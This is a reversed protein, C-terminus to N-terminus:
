QSFSKIHINIHPRACPPHFIFSVRDVPTGENTLTYSHTAILIPSFVTTGQDKAPFIEIKGALKMEPAKQQERKEQEQIKKMLQCKGNCQMKPRTKNVCNKVYEAKDVLYDVYYFEQRFTQGVFALLLITAFIKHM